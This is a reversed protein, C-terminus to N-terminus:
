EILKACINQLEEGDIIFRKGKNKGDEIFIYPFGGPITTNFKAVVKGNEDNLTFGSQHLYMEKRKVERVKIKIEM